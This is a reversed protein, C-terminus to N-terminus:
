QAGLAQVEGQRLSESSVLIMSAYLLPKPILPGRDQISYYLYEKLQEARCGAGTPPITGKEWEKHWVASHHWKTRVEWIIGDSGVKGEGTCTVWINEKAVFIGLAEVEDSNRGRVGCAGKGGSKQCEGAEPWKPWCGYKPLALWCCVGFGGVEKSRFVSLASALIESRNRFLCGLVSPHRWGVKMFELALHCSSSFRLKFFIFYFFDSQGILASKM